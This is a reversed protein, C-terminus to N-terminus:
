RFIDKKTAWLCFFGFVKHHESKEKADFSPNSGEDM